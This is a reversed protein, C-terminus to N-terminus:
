KACLAAPEPALLADEDVQGVCELGRAGAKPRRREPLEDPRIWGGPESAVEGPDAARPLRQLLLGPM